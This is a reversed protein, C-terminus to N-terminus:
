SAAIVGTDELKTKIADPTFPKIIYDDAGAVVAKGVQSHANEASCMIVVTRGNNSARSGQLRLRSELQRIAKLCDMGDVEPMYWDLFIVHPMFDECSEIAERGDAAERITFGLEAVSHAILHRTLEDDDVILCTKEAM